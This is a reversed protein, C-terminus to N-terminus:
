YNIRDGRYSTDIWNLPESTDSCYLIEYIMKLDEKLNWSPNIQTDPLALLVECVPFKYPDNLM